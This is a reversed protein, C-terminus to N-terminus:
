APRWLSFLLGSTKLIVLVEQVLLSACPSDKWLWASTRNRPMSPSSAPPVHRARLSPTVIDVVAPTVASGPSARGVCVPEQRSTVVRQFPEKLMVGALQPPLCLSILLCSIYFEVVWQCAKLRLALVSLHENLNNITTYYTYKSTKGYFLYLLFIHMFFTFPVSKTPLNNQFIQSYREIVTLSLHQVNQQTIVWHASSVM